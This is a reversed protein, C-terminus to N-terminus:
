YGEDLSIMEMQVKLQLKKFLICLANAVLSEWWRHWQLTEYTVEAAINEVCICCCTYEQSLFAVQRTHKQLSVLQQYACVDMTSLLYSHYVFFDSSLPFLFTSSIHHFHKSQNQCIAALHTDTKGERKERSSRARRLSWLSVIGLHAIKLIRWWIDTVNSHSIFIGKKQTERRCFEVFM